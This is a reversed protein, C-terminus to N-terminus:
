FERLYKQAENVGEQFKGGTPINLMKVIDAFDAYQIQSTDKKNLAQKEPSSHYDFGYRETITGSNSNVGKTIPIIRIFKFNSLRAVRRNIIHDIVSFAIDEEPFARQYAKRYCSYNVDVWVQKPAHLISSAELKWIELKENIIPLESNEVLYAKPTGRKSLVQTIEGIYNSIANEDRAGIPIHLDNPLGYRRVAKERAVEDVLKAM